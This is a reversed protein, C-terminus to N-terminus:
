EKSVAPPHLREFCIDGTHAEYITLDNLDIQETIPWTTRLTLETTPESGDTQHPVLSEEDLQESWCSVLSWWCTLLLPISDTERYRQRTYLHLPLLRDSVSILGRHGAPKVSECSFPSQTLDTMMLLMHGESSWLSSVCRWRDSQQRTLLCRRWEWNVQTLVVLRNWKTM